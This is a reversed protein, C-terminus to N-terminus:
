PGAGGAASVNDLMHRQEACRWSERRNIKNIRRYAEEDLSGDLTMAQMSQRKPLFRGSVGISDSMRVKNHGNMQCEQSDNSFNTVYSGEHIFDTKSFCNGNGTRSTNEERSVCSYTETDGNLKSTTVDEDDLLFEWLLSSLNSHENKMKVNRDHFNGQLGEKWGPLVADELEVMAQNVLSSHSYKQTHRVAAAVDPLAPDFSLHPKHPAPPSNEIDAKGTLTSKQFNSAHLNHM